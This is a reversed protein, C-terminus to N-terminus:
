KKPHLDCAIVTKVFRKSKVRAAIMCVLYVVVLYIVAKKDFTILKMVFSLLTYVFTMAVTITAMDRCM